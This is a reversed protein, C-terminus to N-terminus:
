WEWYSKVIDMLHLMWPFAITISLFGITCCGLLWGIWRAIATARREGKPTM